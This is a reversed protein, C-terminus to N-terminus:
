WALLGTAISALRVSSLHIICIFRREVENASVIGQGKSNARASIDSQIM